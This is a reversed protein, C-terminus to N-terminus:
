FRGVSDFSYFLDRAVATSRTQFRLAQGLGLKYAVWDALTSKGCGPEGTILLPQGLALAVNVADVTAQVPRYGRPSELGAMAPAPLKSWRGRDDQEGLTLQWAISMVTGM